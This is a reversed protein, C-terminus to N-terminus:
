FPPGGPITQRSCNSVERCRTPRTPFAVQGSYRPQWIATPHPMIQIKAQWGAPDNLLGLVGGPRQLIAHLEVRRQAAEDLALRASTEAVDRANARRNQEDQYWMLGATTAIMGVLVAAAAGSM